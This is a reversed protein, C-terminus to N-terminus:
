AAQEEVLPLRGRARRHGKSWENYDCLKRERVLWDTKDGGGTLPGYTAELLRDLHISM